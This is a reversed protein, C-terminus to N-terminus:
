QSSRHDPDVADQLWGLRRALHPFLQRAVGRVAYNCWYWGAVPVRMELAYRYMRWTDRASRAKNASLTDPAQRYTMLVLPVGLVFPTESLLELWFAFDQRRRLPPMARHGFVEQDYMATSCAVTNTKLLDSRTARDPVGIVSVRGNKVDRRQYGTCSFPVKSRVMIELQIELKRPHWQDDADLFAVYRGRANSIGINRALGAGIQGETAFSRLRPDSAVLREIIEPSCDTSGDNILLAEWDTLTQRQVSAVTDFLTRAANYVPIIVSVTPSATPLTDSKMSMPGGFVMPSWIHLRIVETRLFHWVRWGPLSSGSHPGEGHWSRRASSGVLGALPRGIPGLGKGRM